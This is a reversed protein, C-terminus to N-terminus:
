KRRGFRQFVKVLIYATGAGDKAATKLQACEHGAPAHSAYAAICTYMSPKMTRARKAQCALKDVDTYTYAHVLALTLDQLTTRGLITHHLIGDLCTPVEQRNGAVSASAKNVAYVHMGIRM